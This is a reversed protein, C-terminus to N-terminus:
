DGEGLERMAQEYKTKDLSKYHWELRDEMFSIGKGKTTHAVLARPRNQDLRLLRELEDVDHGDVDYTEWGFSRLRESLNSQDIIENTRGFAQLGNFDVIAILNKLKLTSALMVAEWISGEECEGDSLVVFFKRHPNDRRSAIAMGVGLSLGMGLSGGSTEIGPATGKDLHEPLIGGDVSFRDLYEKPFFGREALTAYLAASAHAKSLILIDRDSKLPNAPDINMVRFYLVYLIEVISLCSGIHSSRANYTARIISKRIDNPGM